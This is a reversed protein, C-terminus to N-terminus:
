RVNHVKYFIDFKVLFYCTTVKRFFIEPVISLDLSASCAMKYLDPFFRVYFPDNKYSESFLKNTKKFDGNKDSFIPCWFIYRVLGFKSTLYDKMWPHLKQWFKTTVSCNSLGLQAYNGRRWITLFSMRFQGRRISIRSMKVM